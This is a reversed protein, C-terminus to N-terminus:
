FGVDFSLLSALVPLSTALNLSRGLLPCFLKRWHILTCARKMVLACRRAAKIDGPNAAVNSIRLGRGGAVGGEAEGRQEADVVQGLALLSSNIAGSEKLRMGQNGTRRNDESGALDIM